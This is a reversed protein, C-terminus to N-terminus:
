RTISHAYSILYQHWLYTHSVLSELLVNDHEALVSKFLQFFSTLQNDEIIEMMRPFAAYMQAKTVAHLCSLDINGFPEIKDPDYQSKDLDDLHALYRLYGQKDGVAEFHIKSKTFSEAWDSLQATSKSGKFCLLVHYHPKKIQGVVPPTVGVLGAPHHKCWKMVDFDDFTDKDHIPSIAGECHLNSIAKRCMDMDFSEPYAIFAWVRSRTKM